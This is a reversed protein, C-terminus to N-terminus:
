PVLLFTSRMRLLLFKCGLALWVFSSDVVKIVLTACPWYVIGGYEERVFWGQTEGDVVVVIIFISRFGVTMVKASIKMEIGADEKGSSWSRSDLSLHEEEHYSRVLGHTAMGPGTGVFGEDVYTEEVSVVGAVGLIGELQRFLPCTLLLDRKYHTEWHVFCCYLFNGAKREEQPAHVGQFM